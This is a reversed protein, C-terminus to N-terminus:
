SLKADTPLSQSPPRATRKSSFPYLAFSVCLRFGGRIHLFCCLMGHTPCLLFFFLSCKKKNKLFTPTLLTHSLSLSLSFCVIKKAKVCDRCVVFVKELPKTCTSGECFSVHALAGGHVLAPM